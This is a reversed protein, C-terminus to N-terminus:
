RTVGERRGKEKMLVVLAPDREPEPEEAPPPRAALTTALQIREAHQVLLAELDTEARRLAKDAAERAKRMATLATQATDAVLRLPALDAATPRAAVNARQGLEVLHTLLRVGFRWLGPESAPALFLVPVTDGQARRHWELTFNPTRAVASQTSIFLGAATGPFEDLDRRFKVVELTPVTRTYKKVEILVCRDIPLAEDTAFYAHLDGARGGAAPAAIAALAERVEEEGAAGIKVSAKEAPRIPEPSPIRRHLPAVVRAVDPPALRPEVMGRFQAVGVGLAAAAYAPAAALAWAVVDPPPQGALIHAGLDPAVVSSAVSSAAGSTDGYYSDGDDSTMEDSSMYETIAGDTSVPSRTVKPM